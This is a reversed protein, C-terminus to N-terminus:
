RVTFTKSDGPPLAGAEGDSEDPRQVVVTHEGAPLPLTVSFEAFRGDAGAQVPGRAVEAGSADTVTCLLTGEFASGVGEVVVQGPTATSVSTIWAPAQVDAQPARSVTRPLAHGFLVPEAAGDVRVEVPLDEGAAATVTHVLQQVAAAARAADLTGPAAGAPLDVVLRDGARSVGSPGAASWASAYDPDGPDGGLMAALALDADDGGGDVDVYERFLWTGGAGDLWYVPVSSAGSPLAGG